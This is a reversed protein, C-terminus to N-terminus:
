KIKFDEGILDKEICRNVLTRILILLCETDEPIYRIKNAESLRKVFEEDTIDLHYKKITQVDEVERLPLGLSKSNDFLSDIGLNM